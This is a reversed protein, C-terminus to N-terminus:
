SRNEHDLIEFGKPLEDARYELANGANLNSALKGVAQLRDLSRSFQLRVKNQQVDPKWAQIANLCGPSDPLM